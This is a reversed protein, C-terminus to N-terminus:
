LHYCNMALDPYWQEQIYSGRPAPVTTEKVPTEGAVLGSGQMSYICLM